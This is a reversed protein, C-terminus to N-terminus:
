TGSVSETSDVWDTGFFFNWLGAEAILSLLHEVLVGQLANLIEPLCLVGDGGGLTADGTGTFNKVFDFGFDLGLSVLPSLGNISLFSLSLYGSFGKLGLLFTDKM